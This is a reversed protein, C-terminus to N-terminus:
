KEVEVKFGIKGLAEIATVHTEERLLLYDKSFTSVVLVNLNKHAITKTVKALFGTALFPLSVEIELLKFWKVDKDHKTKPVNKEETVVTIEDKDKTILFHDGIVTEQARLYAYRGRHVIVKSSKIIDDVTQSEM